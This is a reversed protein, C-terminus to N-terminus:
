VGATESEASAQEAEVALGELIWGRARALRDRDFYRVEARTFPRCAMALFRWQKEGLIALREVDGYHRFGFKVEEWIAAPEWGSLQDVEFLIRVQGEAAAKMAAEAEHVFEDCDTKSLKGTARVHMARGVREVIELAM